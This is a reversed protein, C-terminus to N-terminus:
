GGDTAPRPRQQLDFLESFGCIRCLWRIVPGAVSEPRPEDPKTINPDIMPRMFTTLLSNSCWPCPHPTRALTETTENWEM